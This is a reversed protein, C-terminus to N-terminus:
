FQKIDNIAEEGNKEAPITISENEIISISNNQSM